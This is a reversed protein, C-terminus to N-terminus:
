WKTRLAGEKLHPHLSAKSLISENNNHGDDAQRVISDNPACNSRMKSVNLKNSPHPSTLPNESGEREPMFPQVKSDREKLHTSSTLKRTYDVM